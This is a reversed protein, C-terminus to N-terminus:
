AAAQPAGVQGTVEHARERDAWLAYGGWAYGALLLYYTISVPQVAMPLRALADPMATFLALSLVTVPATAIQLWGSRRPLVGARVTAVGFLPWALILVLVPPGLAGAGQALLGNSGFLPQAAPERALLPTVYGEYLEIYVEYAMETMLLAFAVLGLGGARRAQRAYLAPLGLLLLVRSVFGVIHAPGYIAKLADVLEHSPPHLLDSV